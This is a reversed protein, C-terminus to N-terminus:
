PLSIKLGHSFVSGSVPKIWSVILDFNCLISLGSINLYVSDLKLLSKYDVVSHWSMVLLNLIGCNKSM